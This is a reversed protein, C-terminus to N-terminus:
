YKIYYRMTVAPPQVTTSAGYIANSLKADFKTAGATNSGGTPLVTSASTYFAGSPRNADNYYVVIGVHGTINPLGAAKNTGATGSGQIFKDTLNPLQFTSSGDGAGYTTGIVGFLAAYTSRSVSAGNCLLYGSPASNAAFAIVTGPLVAAKANATNAVSLASNATNQATSAASAASNAANQATNASNQAQQVTKSLAADRADMEAKIGAKFSDSVRLVNQDQTLTDNDAVIVDPHYMPASVVSLGLDIGSVNNPLTVNQFSLSTKGGSYEVGTLHIAGFSVDDPAVVSDGALVRVAMGVELQSSFDGSITATTASTKTIVPRGSDGDVLPAFGNVRMRQFSGATVTCYVYSGVKWGVSNTGEQGRRVVVAGAEKNVSEVYVIERVVSADRLVLPVYDRGTIIQPLAEVGELYLTTAGEDCDASLRTELFNNVIPFRDTYAM